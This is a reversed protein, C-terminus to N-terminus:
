GERLTEQYYSLEVGDALEKDLGLWTSDLQEGPQGSSPLFEAGDKDARKRIGTGRPPLCAMRSNDVTCSLDICHRVCESYLRTEAM